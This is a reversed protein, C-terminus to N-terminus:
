AERAIALCQPWHLHRPAWQLFWPLGRGGVFGTYFLFAWPKGPGAQGTLSEKLSWPLDRELNGM